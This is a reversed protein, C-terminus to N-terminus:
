IKCKSLFHEVLGASFAEKYKFWRYVARSKNAQFSVMSRTLLNEVSLKGRFGREFEANLKEIARLAPSDEVATREANGVVGADIPLEREFESQQLITEGSIM